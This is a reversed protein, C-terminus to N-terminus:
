LVNFWRTELREFGESCETSETMNVHSHVCQCDDDTQLTGSTVLLWEHMRSMHPSLLTEGHEEGALAAQSRSKIRKM